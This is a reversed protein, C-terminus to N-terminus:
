EQNPTKECKGTSLRFCLVERGRRSGISQWSQRPGLPSFSGACGSTGERSQQWTYAGWGSRDSSGHAHTHSHAYTHFHTHAHAHTHEIGDSELQDRKDWMQGEVIGERCQM